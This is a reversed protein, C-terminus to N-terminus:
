RQSWIWNGLSIGALAMELVEQGSTPQQVGDQRAPTAGNTTTAENNRPDIAAAQETSAVMTSSIARWHRVKSSASQVSEVGKTDNDGGELEIIERLRFSESLVTEEMQLELQELEAQDQAKKQQFLLEVERHKREQERRQLELRKGALTNQAQLRDLDLRAKVTRSSCSSTM